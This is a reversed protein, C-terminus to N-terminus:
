DVVQPVLYLHDTIAPATKQYKERHSTETVVDERLRQVQELPHAMPKVDDTNVAEMQAFLDLINSLEGAVQAVETEEVLLSSLKAITRVQQKELIVESM